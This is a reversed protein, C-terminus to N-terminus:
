VAYPKECIDKSLEVILDKYILPNINKGLLHLVFWGGIGFHKTIKKVVSRKVYRLHGMIMYTRLAPISFVLIRFFVALASLFALFILWFWLIVFIKENVINLSLICLRDQLQVSGSPGYSRYWCKTLKPFFQDM